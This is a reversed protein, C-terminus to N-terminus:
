FGFDDKGCRRVKKRGTEAGGAIRPKVAWGRHNRALEIMRVTEESGAAPFYAGKGWAWECVALMGVLGNWSHRWGFPLTMKNSIWGALVAGMAKLFM